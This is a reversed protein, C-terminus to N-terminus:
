CKMNYMVMVQVETEWFGSGLHIWENVPMSALETALETALESALESALEAVVALAVAICGSGVMMWWMELKGVEWINPCTPGSTRTGMRVARILSSNVLM